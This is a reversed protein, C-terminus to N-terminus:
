RWSGSGTRRSPRHAMPSSSSRARASTASRGRRVSRRRAWRPACSRGDNGACAGGRDGEPSPAAALLRARGPPDVNGHRRRVGAVRHAAARRDMKRDARPRRRVRKGGRAARSGACCRVRCPSRRPAHGQRRRGGRGQDAGPLRDRLGEGQSLGAGAARRSLRACGAVGAKEMLAKARDKLGMARIAAPRRASLCWVPPPAPRPSHQTKPCSVTARICANAGSGDRGRRDAPRDSLYSQTAPAPGIPFRRTAYGCMRRRADAESYVAMTRMGLRRATRAIRCAIEGRNAILVSEFM